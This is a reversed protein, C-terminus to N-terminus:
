KLDEYFPINAKLWGKWGLETVPFWESNIGVQKWKLEGYVKFVIIPPLAETENTWWIGQSDPL